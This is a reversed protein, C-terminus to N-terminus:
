LEIGRELLYTRLKSRLRSLSVSVSNETKGFDAALDAVSDMYWYRRVFLRRKEKPLAALFDDIALVLDRRELEQEVDDKGSVVDALEDLVIVAQGSGRKQAANHHYRNLSLNRVIKGLFTSLIAPRHPPMSNWARLYTDNVCEEADEHNGLINRAITTCYSGYKEATAPIAHEDRNWYLLLIKADEM